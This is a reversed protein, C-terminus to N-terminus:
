GQSFEVRGDVTYSYIIRAKGTTLNAATGGTWKLILKNDAATHKYGTMTLATIGTAHISTNTAYRTASGADGLAIVDTAGADFATDVIVEISRM